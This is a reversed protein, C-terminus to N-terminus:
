DRLLRVSLGGQKGIYTRYVLLYNNHGLYRSWANDADYETATWFCANSGLDSFSGDGFHHRWGGPLATFGSENTAGSNPSDWHNTGAERLKGAVSNGGLYDVLIQWEADTPVHWGAPAIYRGDNVTFWNYLYGYTSANSSNNDYSCCAGTTLNLWEANDTVNPIADGNRYHTVKLNEAMWLQNGIQVTRYTNGDIDKCVNPDSAVPNKNDKKCGLAIPFFAILVIVAIACSLLSHGKDQNM